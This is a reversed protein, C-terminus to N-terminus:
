DDDEERSRYNADEDEDSGAEATAEFEVDKAPNQDTSFDFKLNKKASYIIPEDLTVNPKRKTLQALEEQNKTEVM